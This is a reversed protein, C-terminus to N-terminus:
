SCPASAAYMCLADVDPVPGYGEATVGDGFFASMDPMVYFAGQPSALKVGDIDSLRQVLYDQVRFVGAKLCIHQPYSSRWCPCRAATPTVCWGPIAAKCAGRGQRVRREQFARVMAAVTEGGRVGLDLATLAAQQAISSAGSTSQSQITAAASAYRAPAALYGLRWGTMAYAQVTQLNQNNLERGHSSLLANSVGSM